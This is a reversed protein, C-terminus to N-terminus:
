AAGQVAAATPPVLHDEVHLLCVPCSDRRLLWTDVCDKHYLHFCPLTRVLEGDQISSNSCAGSDATLLHALLRSSTNVQESVEFPNRCVPCSSAADTPETASETSKTPVRGVSGKDADALDHLNGAASSTSSASDDSSSGLSSSSRSPIIAYPAGGSELNLNGDEDEGSGDSASSHSAVNRRRLPQGSSSVATSARRRSHHRAPVSSGDHGESEIDREATSVAISHRRPRRGAEAAATSAAAAPPSPAQYRGLPLLELQAVTLAPM